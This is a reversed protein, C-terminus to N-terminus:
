AGIVLIAHSGTGPPITSSCSWHTALSTLAQEGRLKDGGALWPMNRYSDAVGLRRGDAGCLRRDREM